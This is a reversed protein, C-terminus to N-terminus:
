AKLAGTYVAMGVVADVGIAHLRDVEEMSRIGGAAILKKSTVKRLREITDFPIGQMMGETEINTYLFGGCFEETERMMREPTLDTDEKWGKISVKGNRSDVAFILRAAAAAHTFSQAIAL